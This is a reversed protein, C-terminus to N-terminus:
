GRKLKYAIMDPWLSYEINGYPHVKAVYTLHNDESLVIRMKAKRLRSKIFKIGKLRVIDGVQYKKM